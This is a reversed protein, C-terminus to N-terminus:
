EKRNESHVFLPKRFSDAELNARLLAEADAQPATNDMYIEELCAQREDPTEKELAECFISRVVLLNNVGDRRSLM